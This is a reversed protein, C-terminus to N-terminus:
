VNYSINPTAVQSHFVVVVEFSNICNPDNPDRTEFAYTYSGPTLGSLSLSLFPTGASAPVWNNYGAPLSPGTWRHQVNPDTYIGTLTTSEGYCVSTNGNISAFPPKRVTVIVPSVAMGYYKCGHNPDILIPWYSGSETPTFTLGSHVQVNDRMWIAD